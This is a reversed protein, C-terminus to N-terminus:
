VFPRVWGLSLAVFHDVRAGVAASEGTFVLVWRCVGCVRARRFFGAASTTKKCAFSLVVTTKKNRKTKKEKEPLRFVPPFIGFFVWVRWKKKGPRKVPVHLTWWCLNECM